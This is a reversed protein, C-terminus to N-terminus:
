HGKQKEKKKQLHIQFKREKEFEKQCRKHSKKEMKYQEQYLQFAQQAKTGINSQACQKKIERQMRKPNIRKETLPNEQLAPTFRFNKWQSSLFEYVMYDKPEPGFVIRSAKYHNNEWREYIGVWFPNQFLITFKMKVQEM